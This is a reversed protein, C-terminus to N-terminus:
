SGVAWYEIVVSPAFCRSNLVEIKLSTTTIYISLSDFVEDELALTQSYNM